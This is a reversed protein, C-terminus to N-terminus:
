FTRVTGVELWKSTLATGVDLWEFVSVFLGAFKQLVPNRKYAFSNLVKTLLM